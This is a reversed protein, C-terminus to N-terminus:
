RRRRSVRMAVCSARAHSDGCEELHKQCTLRMIRKKERRDRRIAHIRFTFPNFFDAQFQLFIIKICLNHIHSFNKSKNKM